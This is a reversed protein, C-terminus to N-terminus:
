DKWSRSSNQDVIENITPYDINFVSVTDDPARRKMVVTQDLLNGNKSFLYRGFIGQESGLLRIAASAAAPSATGARRFAKDLLRISEYGAAAVTDVTDANWRRRYSAVFRAVEDHTDNPNFAAAVYTGGRHEAIYGRVTAESGHFWEFEGKLRNLVEDTSLDPDHTLWNDVRLWILIEEIASQVEDSTAARGIIRSGDRSLSVALREPTISPNNTLTAMLEEKVDNSLLPQVLDSELGPGCIVPRDMGANRLQRILRLSEEGVGALFVIEVQKQMLDAALPLVANSERSVIETPFTTFMELSLANVPHDRLNQLNSWIGAGIRTGYSDRAALIAVKRRFETLVLRAATQTLREQRTAHLRDEVEEHSYPDVQHLDLFLKNHAGGEILNFDAELQQRLTAGETLDDLILVANFQHSARLLPTLIDGFDSQGREYTREFVVEFEVQNGYEEIISHAHQTLKDSVDGNFDHPYCLALRIKKRGSLHRVAAVMADVVPETGPAITFVNEFGHMTLSPNMSTPSIFLTGSLHYIVSAPISSDTAHGVVALIMPDSAIRDAISVGADVSTEDFYRVRVQRRYESGNSDTLAVGGQDNIEDVALIVGRLLSEARSDNRPWVVAVQIHEDTDQAAAERKPAWQEYGTQYFRVYYITIVIVAFVIVPLPDFQRENM